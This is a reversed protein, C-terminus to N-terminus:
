VAGDPGSAVGGLRGRSARPASTEITRIVAPNDVSGSVIPLDASCATILVVALGIAAAKQARHMHAAKDCESHAQLRQGFTSLV